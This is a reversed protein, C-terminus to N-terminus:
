KKCIKKFQCDECDESNAEFENNKIKSATEELEKKLIKRATEELEKKLEEIYDEDIDFSILPNIKEKDKIKLAYIQIEEINHGEFEKNEDRLAMLYFHLQKRYKKLYEEGVLSTNKYDLIGLKGDKEYILDVVGSFAYNSGRIYFPYESNIITLHNGVEKYYRIVDKTITKLKNDYNEPDEEKFRINAKEFLTEVEKAVGEDGIYKDYIEATSLDEELYKAKIKKNIRELASHIFIGDDIEKKTSFSFGLKDLLKYKFPCENYNELATFSLQVLEEKPPKHEPELLNIDINEPDILKTHYNESFDLNDEIVDNVRKPGKNLAM